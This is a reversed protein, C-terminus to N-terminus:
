RFGHNAIEGSMQEPRLGQMHMEAFATVAFHLKRVCFIFPSPLVHKRCLTNRSIRLRSSASAVVNMLAPQLSRQLVGNLVGSDGLVCPTMGHPMAKGRM